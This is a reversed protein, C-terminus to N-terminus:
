YNLLYDLLREPLNQIADRQLHYTIIRNEHEEVILGAERLQTLHRSVASTSINLMSAIKKGHIHGEHQAILQLINLRTSDGLAKAVALVEHKTNELQALRAETRACDFLITVNGYGYFMYVQRSILKVPVFVIDTIPQDPPLPPPLKDKGTIHELLTTGGKRMLLGEKEALAIEWESRFHDVQQALFNEWYLQWLGALRHQFGSVDSLVFALSNKEYYHQYHPVEAEIAEEIANRDLNAAAFTERPLIRGMLYFIFSVADMNRVYDFFGAVDEHNEYDVAMEFFISGSWFPSYLAELEVFFRSDFHQRASTIWTTHRQGQRLTELSSLLEYVPSPRIQILKSLPDNSEIVELPM